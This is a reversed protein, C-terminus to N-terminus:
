SELSIFIIAGSKGSGPEYRFSFFDLRQRFENPSKIVKNGARSCSSLRGLQFSELNLSPEM